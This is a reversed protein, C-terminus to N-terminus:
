WGPMGLSKGTIAAATDMKQLMQKPTIDGLMLEQIISRADMEPWTMVGAEDIETFTVAEYAPYNVSMVNDSPTVDAFLNLAPTAANFLEQNEKSAFYAMFDLAETMHPANYAVHVGVGTCIPVSGITDQYPVPFWGLDDEIAPYAALLPELIFDGTCHMAVKGTGLREVAMEYTSSIFDPTVYGKDRLEVLQKLSNEYEPIDAYKIKNSDLDRFIQRAGEVGRTLYLNNFLAHMIHTTCFESGNASSVNVPIADTKSKIKECCDLFESWNKPLETIGAESFISKRYLFGLYSSSMYPLGRVTGDSFEIYSKVSKNLRGVWEENSLDLFYEIPWEVEAYKTGDSRFLDVANGSMMQTSLITIYEAAPYLQVAVKNGTKAEWRAICDKMAQTYNENVCLFNITTGGAKKEQAGGAVAFGVSLALLLLVCLGKKM